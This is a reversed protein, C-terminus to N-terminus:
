LEASLRRAPLWCAMRTALCGARVFERSLPLFGVSRYFPVACRTANLEITQVEPFVAEIHLRCAEWLQTGVGHRMFTPSVFFLRLVGPKSMLALGALETGVFAGVVLAAGEILGRMRTRDTEASFTERAAPEWDEAVHAYFSAHVLHSAREADESNLPRLTSVQM